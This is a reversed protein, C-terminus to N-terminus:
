KKRGGFWILGLIVLVPIAIKELTPLIPDLLTKATGAVIKAAYEIVKPVGVTFFQGALTIPNPPEGYILVWDSWTIGTEQDRISPDTMYAVDARRCVTVSGGMGDSIFEPLYGNPCGRSIQLSRETHPLAPDWDVFKPLNDNVELYGVGEFFVNM